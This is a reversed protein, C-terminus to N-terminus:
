MTVPKWSGLRKLSDATLGHRATLRLPGPGLDLVYDIHFSGTWPSLDRSVGKGRPPTSRGKQPFIAKGDKGDIWVKSFRYPSKASRCGLLQVHILDEDDKDISHFRALTFLKNGPEDQEHEGIAILRGRSWTPEELVAAAAQQNVQDLEAAQMSAQGTAKYVRLDARAVVCKSDNVLHKCHFGRGNIATVQLTGAM